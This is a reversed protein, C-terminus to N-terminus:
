KNCHHSPSVIRNNSNQETVIVSSTISHVNSHNPFSLFYSSYAAQLFQLSRARIGNLPLLALRLVSSEWRVRKIAVSTVGKDVCFYTGSRRANLESFKRM